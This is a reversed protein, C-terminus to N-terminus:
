IRYDPRTAAEAKSAATGVSITSRPGIDAGADLQLPCGHLM